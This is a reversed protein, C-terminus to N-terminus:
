FSRICRQIRRGPTRHQRSFLRLSQLSDGSGARTKGTVVPAANSGADAATPCDRARNEHQVRQEAGDSCLAAHKGVGPVLKHRLRDVRRRM